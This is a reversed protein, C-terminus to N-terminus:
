SVAAFFQPSALTLYSSPTFSSPLTTQGTAGTAWRAHTVGLGANASTASFSGHQLGWTPTGGATENSVALVDYSGAALQYPGGGLAMTKFVDTGTAWAATQDASVGVEAGAATWLGALNGTVLGTGPAAQFLVVNTVLTAVKLDIRIVQVVGSAPGSASSIGAPDFNWAAMSADAPQFLGHPRALNYLNGSTDLWDPQGGAGFLLGGGSPTSPTASQNALLGPGGASWPLSATYSPSSTTGTAEIFGPQRWWNTNTGDDHVGATAAQAFGPGLTVNASSGTISFGYQPSSAGGTLAIGPFVTLGAVAVPITSAACRFGAFSGGGSTGNAGDRRCMIGTFSAPVTGTATVSVGNQVNGDTSCGSFLAGGSGTGTGWAGSLSFGNLNYEARCGIFQSNSPAGALNFGNGTCGIAELDIWTCDTMAVSFGHSGCTNAAVRTGRWSYAVGSSNSVAAIGHAPAQRIQVDQLVVGHVYGQAQIGDASGSLASCDITLNSIQQGSSVVPYGGTAQDLLLIAAAGSFSAMPRIVAGSVADIHSGKGLDLRVQPPIIVPGTTAYIAGPSGTVTGGPRCAALASNIAATSDTIGNPDAGGAYAPSDVSIIGLGAALASVTIKKTTGTGAESVDSTDVIVLVDGAAPAALAPYSTLQSM